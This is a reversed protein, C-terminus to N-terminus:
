IKRKKCKIIFHRDGLIDIHYNFRTKKLQKKIENVTFAALLSNYFDAKLIEPENPSVNEVIRKAEDKSEPRFLDMVYISTSDNSLREVEHWFDNPDPIHHLLDKSIIIDYEKTKIDLGPLRGVKIEIRNTLNHKKIKQEALEVMQTSGDFALINIDAIQKVLGIDVDGPGCGIDLLKNIIKNLDKIIFQIFLQNSYTFDANSYALTQEKDEMLEPELIRDIM